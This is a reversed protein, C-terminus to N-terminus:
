SVQTKIYEVEKSDQALRARWTPTDNDLLIRDTRKLHLHKTTGNSFPIWLNWWIAGPRPLIIKAIGYTPVAINLLETLSSM